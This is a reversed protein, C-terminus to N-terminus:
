SFPRNDGPVFIDAFIITNKEIWYLCCSATRRGQVYHGEATVAILFETDSPYFRKLSIDNYCCRLAFLSSKKETILLWFRDLAKERCVLSGRGRPETLDPIFSTALLELPTAPRAILLFYSGKGTRIGSTFKKRISKWPSKCAMKSLVYATKVIWLRNGPNGETRERSSGAFGSSHDLLGEYSVNRFGRCSRIESSSLENISGWKHKLCTLFSASQLSLKCHAIVCQVTFVIMVRRSVVGGDDRLECPLNWGNKLKMAAQFATSINSHTVLKEGGGLLLNWLYNLLSDCFDRKMYATGVYGVLVKVWQFLYSVIDRSNKGGLDRQTVFQKTYGLPWKDLNWHGCSLDVGGVTRDKCIKSADSILANNHRQTRVYKWFYLFFYDYKLQVWNM